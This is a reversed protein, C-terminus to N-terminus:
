FLSAFWDRRPSVRVQFVDNIRAQRRVRRPLRASMARRGSAQSPHRLAHRRVAVTLWPPATRMTPGAAITQYFTAFLSASRAELIMKSRLLAPSFSLLLSPSFSLLLSLTHIITDRPILTRNLHM